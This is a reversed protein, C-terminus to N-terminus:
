HMSSVISITLLISIIVGYTSGNAIWSWRRITESPCETIKVFIWRETFVSMFFFPVMLVTAAAPVMWHLESEYPGLWPAQVIVSILRGMFSSGLVFGRARTMLFEAGLMVGWTLPLGVLTSGFNAISAAFGSQKWSLKCIRHAFWTEAVIIPILLFWSVPWVVALMPVGSDARAQSSGVALFFMGVLTIRIFYKRNM